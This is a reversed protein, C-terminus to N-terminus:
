RAPRISERDTPTSSEQAPEAGALAARLEELTVTATGRKAVVVGAALNALRVATERDAGAATALAFAALATDGAGTVDYVTRAATPVDVRRLSTGAEFLSMGKSGRTVVLAELGLEALLRQAAVDIWDGGNVRMGALQALERENPMLVTAGAYKQPRSDKPAVVTPIKARRAAALGAALVRPTLTGKAYDSFVMVQVHGARSEIAEVLRDELPGHVSHTSEEDLRFVQQGHELSMLRMKRSSHRGPERVVEAEVGLVELLECIENGTADAGVVGAACVRAGLSCLNRVVNGAGGLMSERRVLTLVPVPAEPSIREIHGWLYEDVMLDGVVLVRCGQLRSMIGTLPM